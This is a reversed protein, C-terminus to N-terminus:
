RYSIMNAFMRYAGASGAQLQRYWVMSTYIYNGNGYRAVLLGGSLAPEGRDQSSLLAEYAQDWAAPYYLGREQVWGKFDAATIRNPLQMLRHDPKLLTVPADEETVRGDGLILRYPALQPRSNRVDPNWENSKHYFVILTGGNKAYDLLRQNSSILEPHAEYGRNDIVISNYNTLDSEQIDRVKLEHGEVGLARLAHQLTDDFSPLYGVRLGPSVRADNALARIRRQTIIEASNATTISISLTGTANQHLPKEKAERVPEEVAFTRTERPDLSFEQAVSFTRSGPEKIKIEGRFQLPTHNKLTLNFLRRGDISGITRVYPSPSVRKIEVLPVIPLRIENKLEFIAGEIELEGKLAIPEGLFRGDYLHEAAPVSLQAGKPPTCKVEVSTDTGPPLKEAIELPREVGWNTVTMKRIGIDMNGSNAFIAHLQSAVGRVLSLEDSKLTVSLGSAVALARDLRKAMLHFRQPDLDVIEAPATFTGARRANILAILAEERKDVFETLPRDNIAPPALKSGVRLPLFLGEVFSKANEPLAPTTAFERTLRYRILPLETRNQARLREAVSKPWPGQTAHQQLAALAQEGFSANRVQQIENPDVTVIKGKEGPESASGFGSRVFLRKPQWLRLQKLQEPFSNPNAAADFAWQVLQGTAQHHGHGRSSGHNTIIVDPRLQRIKLVMRRLAEKEGWVKFTEEASKSYGFDNLGLFYPESGQIESAAMTERARLVGLEQYLEPGVANQGGEGYTSFLSVTHIGYKRRLMTLTTGDEDDPHAAVCMVTWPNTLDLLVQYLEARDVQELSTTWTSLRERDLVAAQIPAAVPTLIVSQVLLLIQTVCLLRSRTMEMASQRNGIALQWLVRASDILRRIPLRCDAITNKRDRPNM